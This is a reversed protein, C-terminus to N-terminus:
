SGSAQAKGTERRIGDWGMRMGGCVGCVMWVGGWGYGVGGMGWGM